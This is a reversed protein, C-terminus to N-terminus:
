CQLFIKEFNFVKQISHAINALVSSLLGSLLLVVGRPVRDGHQRLPWPKIIIIITIMIIMIIIIIIIIMIIIIIIIIIIKMIIIIIIIIM